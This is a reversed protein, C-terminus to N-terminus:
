KRMWKSFEKILVGDQISSIKGEYVKLAKDIREMPSLDNKARYGWQTYNPHPTRWYPVGEEPHEGWQEIKSSDINRAGGHWGEIFVLNFLEENGLRHNGHWYDTSFDMDIFGDKSTVKYMYKLSYQRNYYKPKYTHYFDDIARKIIKNLDKEYVKDLESNIQKVIAKSNKIMYNIIENRTM